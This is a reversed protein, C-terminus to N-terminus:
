LTFSSIPYLSAVSGSLTSMYKGDLKLFFNERNAYFGFFKKFNCDDEHLKWIEECHIATMGEIENEEYIPDTM